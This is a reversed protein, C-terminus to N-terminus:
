FCFITLKIDTVDDNVETVLDYYRWDTVSHKKRLELSQDYIIQRMLRIDCSKYFYYYEAQLRLPLKNDRLQMEHLQYRRISKTINEAGKDDYGCEKVASLINNWLDKLIRDQLTWRSELYADLDYIARQVEILKNYLGKKDVGDLKGILQPLKRYEFLSVIKNKKM